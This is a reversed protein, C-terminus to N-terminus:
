KSCYCSPLSRFPLRLSNVAEAGNKGEIFTAGTSVEKVADMLQKRALVSDDCILIKKGTIDM